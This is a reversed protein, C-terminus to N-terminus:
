AKRGMYVYVILAFLGVQVLTSVLSAFYWAALAAAALAVWGGAGGALVRTSVMRLIQAAGSFGAGAAGRIAPWASVSWGRVADVIPVDMASVPAADSTARDERPAPPPSDRLQLPLRLSALAGDM